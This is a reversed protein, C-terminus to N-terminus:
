GGRHPGLRWQAGLHLPCVAIIIVEPHDDGALGGDFGAIGILEAECGLCPHRDSGIRELRIERQPCRIGTMM